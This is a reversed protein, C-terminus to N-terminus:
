QYIYHLITISKLSLVKKLPALFQKLVETNTDFRDNGGLRMANPLAGKVSDSVVGTGGIVSHLRSMKGGLSPTSIFAFYFFPRLRM